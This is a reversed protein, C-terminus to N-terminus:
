EEWHLTVTAPGGTVAPDPPNGLLQLTVQGDSRAAATVWVPKGDPYRLSAWRWAVQALAPDDEVLLRMGALDVGRDWTGDTVAAVTATATRPTASAQRLVVVSALVLPVMVWAIAAAGMALRGGRLLSGPIRPGRGPIAGLRERLWASGRFRDMRREVVLVVVVSIAITVAAVPLFTPVPFREPSAGWLLRQLALLVPMHFLYVPYSLEGIFRDRPNSGTRRFLVPLALAIALALWGPLFTPMTALGALLVLLLAIGAPSRAPIRGTSRLYAFAGLGFFIFSAGHGAYLLDPAQSAGAWGIGQIPFHIQAAVLLYVAGAAIFALTRAASRVIFPAAIYFGLEVGLTWAPPQIPLLAGPVCGGANTPLCLIMGADLGVIAANAVLFLLLTPPAFTALNEGIQHRFPWLAALQALLFVPLLRLYRNAYFVRDPTERYTTDLVLAMYFGSILFFVQVAAHGLFGNPGLLYFATHEAVVLLALVLRLIGM